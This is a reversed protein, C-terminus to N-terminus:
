VVLDTASLSTVGTLNIIFEVTGFDGDTNGYLVGNEFKLQGAATFDTVLTTSFADDLELNTTDADLGSLDLLDGVTFDTITDTTEVTTGLDTLADFNFRDNGAGGILRDIGGGGTLTDNGAGGSLTNNGDNGTLNDAFASGIINEISILTDTGSGGTAQGTEIALSVTVGTTGSVGAAYSVTDTGGAGNLTNNGLGAFLINDLDNGTLNANGTLMIQGNEVFAALTHSSVRSQVSDTGGGSFERVIDGSDRVVYIDNGSGGIMLDNGIGGDLRDNGNGGDLKDKGSGGDLRDNGNGAVLTDNGALAFMNNHGATGKLVNAGADGLIATGAFAVVSAGTKGVSSINGAKDIQRIQIDNAEYAGEALKFTYAAKGTKIGTTWTKGRDTTYEWRAGVEIGGVFVVRTKDHVVGTTTQTVSKLLVNEVPVDNFGRRTTTDVQAIKDIVSMGTIVKGFVAYGPSNASSFNLDANTV